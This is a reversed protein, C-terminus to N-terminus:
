ILMKALSIILTNGILQSCFPSNFFFNFYKMLPKAWPSTLVGRKVKYEKLSVLIGTIIPIYKYIIYFSVGPLLM